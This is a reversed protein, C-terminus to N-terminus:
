VLLQLLVPLSLEERLPIQLLVLLALLQVSLPLLVLLQVLLLLLAQQLDQLPLV